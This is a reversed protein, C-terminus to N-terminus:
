TALTPLDGARLQPSLRYRAQVFCYISFAALGAGTVGLLIRGFPRTELIALAEGVGKAHEPNVSWGAYLIAGGIILLVFGHAVLGFRVFPALRETWTTRRIERRYTANWSKYFLYVGVGLTVGGAVMVLIRGMPEGMVAASWNAASNDESQTGKIAIATATAGLFAHSAGSLFQGFRAGLGRADSGEDDLDFAADAFRWLAYGFLGAAVASVMVVGFPQRSLYNLAGTSGEAEGGNVAAFVALAGIVLYVFGRAGYGARMASELLANKNEHM